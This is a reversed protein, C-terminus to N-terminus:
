LYCNSKLIAASLTGGRGCCCCTRIGPAAVSLANFSRSPLVLAAFELTSFVSEKSCTANLRVDIPIRLNYAPSGIHVGFM